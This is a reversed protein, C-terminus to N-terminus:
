ADDGEKPWDAPLPKRWPRFEYRKGPCGPHGHAHKERCLWSEGCRNCLHWEPATHHDVELCPTAPPKTYAADPNSRKFTSYETAYVTAYYGPRQETM